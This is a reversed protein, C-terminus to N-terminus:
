KKSGFALILSSTQEGSWARQERSEARQETGQARHGTGQARHGEGKFTDRRKGTRWQLRRVGTTM